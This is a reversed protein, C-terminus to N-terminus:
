PIGIIIAPVNKSVILVSGFGMLASIESIYLVINCPISEIKNVLSIIDPMYGRSTTEVILLNIM